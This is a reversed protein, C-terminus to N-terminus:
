AKKEDAGAFRSYISEPFSRPTHLGRGYGSQPHSFAPNVNREMGEMKHSQPYCRPLRKEEDTQHFHYYGKQTISLLGLISFHGVCLLSNTFALEQGERIYRPTRFIPPVLPKKDGPQGLDKGAKGYSAGLRGSLVLFEAKFFYFPDAVRQNERQPWHLSPDPAM